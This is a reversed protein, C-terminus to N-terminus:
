ELSQILGRKIGPTNTIDTYIYITIKIQFLGYCEVDM